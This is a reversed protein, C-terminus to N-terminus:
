AGNWRFLHSLRHNVPLDRTDYSDASSFDELLLSYVLATLLVPLPGRSASLFSRTLVSREHRHIAVFLEEKGDFNSYLAGRSYGADEAIKEAV